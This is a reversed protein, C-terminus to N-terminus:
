LSLDFDTILSVKIIDTPPIEVDPVWWRAENESVARITPHLKFEASGPDMWKSTDKISFFMGLEAYPVQLAACM